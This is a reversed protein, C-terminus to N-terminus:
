ERPTRFTDHVDLTGLLAAPLHTFNIIQSFTSLRLTVRSRKPVMKRVVTVRRGSWEEPKGTPTFLETRTDAHQFVEWKDKVRHRRALSKPSLWEDPVSTEDHTNDDGSRARLTGDM